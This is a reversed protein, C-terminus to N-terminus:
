RVAKLVNSVVNNRNVIPFKARKAQAKFVSDPEFVFPKGVKKLVRLDRENDGMGASHHFDINLHSNESYNDIAKLKEESSGPYYIIKGTYVGDKIELRGAITERKGIKLERGLIRVMEIPSGSLLVIKLGEARIDKVFGRVYPYLKNSVNDWTEEAILKMETEKKGNMGKAFLRYIEDVAVAKDVENNKYKKYWSLIGDSIEKSVIGKKMLAKLFEIGLNGKFLTGDVDFIALRGKKFRKIM